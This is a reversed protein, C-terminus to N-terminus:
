VHARGIKEASLEVLGDIQAAVLQTQERQLLALLSQAAQLEQALDRAPDTLMPNM